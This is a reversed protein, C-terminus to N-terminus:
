ASSNLTNLEADLALGLMWLLKLWKERYVDCRQREVGAMRGLILLAAMQAGTSGASNVAEGSWGEGASYSSLQPM